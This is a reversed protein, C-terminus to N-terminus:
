GHEGVIVYLSIGCLVAPDYVTDFAGDGGRLGGSAFLFLPHDTVVLEFFFGREEVLIIIANPYGGFAM